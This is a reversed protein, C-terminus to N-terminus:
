HSTASDTVSCNSRWQDTAWYPLACCISLAICHPGRRSTRTSCTAAWCYSTATTDHPKTCCSRSPASRTTEDFPTQRVTVWITTLLSSSAFLTPRRLVSVGCCDDRDALSHAVLLYPHLHLAPQTTPQQKSQGMSQDTRQYSTTHNDSEQLGPLVRDHFLNTDIHLPQDIPVAAAAEAAGNVADVAPQSM